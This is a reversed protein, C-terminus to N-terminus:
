PSASNRTCRAILSQYRPARSQFVTSFEFPWAEDSIRWNPDTRVVRQAQAFYPDSDTRFCLRSNEQARHAAATLFGSQMIRHKQHRVKPWPDPFLVFLESFTAGTPLTELFLRAEAHVFFLNALRARDRKRLAREVRESVIDVGICLKEPHAAAYATLFHGHGSGLEWTFTCGAPLMERFQAHLDSRRRELEAHFAATRSASPVTSRSDV